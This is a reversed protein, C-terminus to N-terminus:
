RLEESSHAAAGLSAPGPERFTRASQSVGVAEGLGDVEVYSRCSPRWRDVVIEATHGLGANKLGYALRLTLLRCLEHIM